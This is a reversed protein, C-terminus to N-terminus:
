CNRRPKKKHIICSLNKNRNKNKSSIYNTDSFIYSEILNSITCTIPSLFTPCIRSLSLFVALIYSIPIPHLSPHPSFSLPHLCSLSIGAFPSATLLRSFFSVACLRSLSICLFRPYRSFSCRHPFRHRSGETAALSLAWSFPFSLASSALLPPPTFSSSRPRRRSATLPPCNFSSLPRTLALAFPTYAPSLVPSSSVTYFFLFLTLACTTLRTHSTYSSM